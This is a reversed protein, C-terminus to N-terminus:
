QTKSFYECFFFDKSLSHKIKNIFSDTDYNKNKKNENKISNINISLPLNNRLIKESKLNKNSKNNVENLYQEKKFQIRRQKELISEKLKRIAQIRSYNSKSKKNLNQTSFKKKDYNKIEENIFRSLTNELVNSNLKLSLPKKNNSRNKKKSIQNRDLVFKKNKNESLSRVVENRTNSDKKKSSKEKNKKLDFSTTQNGSTNVNSPIENKRIKSVVEKKFKQLRNINNEIKM